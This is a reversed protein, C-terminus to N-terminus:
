WNHMSRLEHLLDGTIGSHSENRIPPRTMHFRDLLGNLIAQIHLAACDIYPFDTNGSNFALALDTGALVIADIGDGNLLTHAIATLTRHQEETAAFGTKRGSRQAAWSRL